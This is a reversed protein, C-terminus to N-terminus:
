ANGPESRHDLAMMKVSRRVEGDKTYPTSIEDVTCDVLSFRNGGEEEYTILFLEGTEKLARWDVDPKGQLVVVEADATFKAIGRTFGIARRSRNM